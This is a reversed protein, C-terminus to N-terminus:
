TKPRYKFPFDFKKAISLQASPQIVRYGERKFVMDSSKTLSQGRIHYLPVSLESKRIKVKNISHLIIFKIIRLVLIEKLSKM